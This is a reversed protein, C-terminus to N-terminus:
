QGYRSIAEAQEPTLVGASLLESIIDTEANKWEAYFAHREEPALQAKGAYLAHRKQQKESAAASIKEAATQDILGAALLEEVDVSTKTQNFAYSDKDQEAGFAVRVAADKNPNGTEAFLAQRSSNESKGTLYGYDTESSAAFAATTMSACLLAMVAM